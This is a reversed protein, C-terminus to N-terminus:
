DLNKIIKAPNGAALVSDKIDKTVISGAGIICNRGINAMVVSNNGIWSKEGIYIKTLTMEKTLDVGSSGFEHIKKGSIIHVGNGIAAGDGIECSGIISYGGIGVGEGIKVKKNAIITGFLIYNVHSDELVMNYFEKRIYIGIIGPIIAFCQAFTQFFYKGKDDEILCLLYAPLILIKIILSFISKLIKRM